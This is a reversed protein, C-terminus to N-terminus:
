VRVDADEGLAYKAELLDLAPKGVLAQREDWTLLRDLVRQTSGERHLCELVDRAGKLAARLAANAYLVIAFGLEGLEELPLLPTRGGEVMNVVKPGPVEAAIRVVEERTRPAEVFVVDAGADRYAHARAIAEDLGRSAIADTRAVILLDDSTRADLAAHLKAVMEATEVVETGAFHGCRKPFAQDELQIANAGRRELVQVTRRVNLANGFGTDADVVLPLEVVERISSVATALEALGVFGADPLGLQTNSIAAGSVYVAEFGIDAVLLAITADGAGPLLLPRGQELRGRLGNSPATM